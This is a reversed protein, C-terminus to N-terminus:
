NLHNFYHHWTSVVLIEPDCSMAVLHSANNRGRCWLADCCWCKSPIASSFKHILAPTRYWRTIIKYGCEQTAVNLSGKHIYSCILEWEPIHFRHKLRTGRHLVVKQLINLQRQISILIPGSNPTKTKKKQFMSRWPIRKALIDRHPWFLTLFNGNTGPLFEPNECLPTVPSLWPTPNTSISANQYKSLTTGILHHNKTQSLLLKPHIRPLFRLCQSPPPYHFTRIHGLRKSEPTHELRRDKHPTNGLLILTPWTPCYRRQRKPPQSFWILNKPGSESVM